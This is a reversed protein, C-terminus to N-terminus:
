RATLRIEERGQLIAIRAEVQRWANRRCKDLEPVQYTEITAYSGCIEEIATGVLRHFRAAGAPTGLESTSVTIIASRPEAHIPAAVLAGAIGLPLLSRM